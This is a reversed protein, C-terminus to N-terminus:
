RAQSGKQKASKYKDRILHALKNSRKNLEKYSLKEDEFVVAINDPTKKVQSEFLQYITKDKPYPADTKNWDVLIKRREPSGEKM